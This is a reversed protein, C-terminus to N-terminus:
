NAPADWRFPEMPLGDANVVNGRVPNDSWNYRIHRIVEGLPHTLTVSSRSITGTAWHWEEGDSSVGFGAAPLGDTTKMGKAETFFVRVTSAVSGEGEEARVVESFVPGTHMLWQEYVKARAWLALRRGVEKKNRPHIDNADGIDTTVVLGTEVTVRHAHRQADRLHAWGGQNPDDSAAKFAALQVIGFPFNGQGWAQRWSTIMLPLLERYAEAQNANSEGQYWTAGRIAYPIFPRLMADHILGPGTSRRTPDVPLSPRGAGFRGDFAVGAECLWPGHLSLFPPRVSADGAPSLRYSSPGGTGGGAGGTDLVTLAIVHRGETVLEAPVTYRRPTNHSHTTQGVLVGDFWVRDADDLPGLTLVLERGVWSRPIAVGRRYRVIGDFDALGEQDRWLGPLPMTGWQSDDFGTEIWNGQGGGAVRHDRDRALQEEWWPKMSEEYRAVAAAHEERIRAQDRNAWKAVEVEFEAVSAGFLPHKRLSARDTWPEARTGGWHIALLGVPVDLAAILELAFATGVATFEGITQPTAVTWTAGTTFEPKTSLLHSPRIVRLRPHDGGLIVEDAGDSASVSWEMNSQGSCVWVEGVLVDKCVIHEEGSRIHLSRGLDSAELAPLDVRWAGSEEVQTSGEHPGFQVTVTSGPEGRGWIPVAVGRQLVAHDSFVSPVELEASLTPSVLLLVLLLPALLSRSM